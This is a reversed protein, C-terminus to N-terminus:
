LTMCFKMKKKRLIDLTYFSPNFVGVTWHIEFHSQLLKLNAKFNQPCLDLIPFSSMIFSFMFFAMNYILKMSM